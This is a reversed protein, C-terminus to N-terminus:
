LVSEFGEVVVSEDLGFERWRHFVWLRGADAAFARPEM